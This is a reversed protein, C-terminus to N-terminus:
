IEVGISELEKLSKWMFKGDHINDLTRKLEEGIDSELYEIMDGTQHAANLGMTIAVILNPLDNVSASKLNEYIEEVTARTKDIGKESWHKYWGDFVFNKYFEELVGDFHVSNEISDFFNDPDDYFISFIDFEPNSLSYYQEVWKEADESNEFDTGNMDNFDRLDLEADRIKMEKTGNLIEELFKSLSPFRGLNQSASELFEPIYITYDAPRGLRSKSLEENDHVYKDYEWLLNHFREKVDSFEEEVRKRAWTQPSLLAHKDLWNFLTKLLKAQIEEAVKGLRVKLQKLVNEKRREMGNFPLTKLLSSKYELEHFEKLKSAFNRENDEDLDDKDPKYVWIQAM